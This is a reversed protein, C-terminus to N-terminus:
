GDKKCLEWEELLLSKTAEDIFDVGHERADQIVMDLLHSFEKTNYQSSGKYCRYIDMRGRAGYVCEGTPDVVRYYHRLQDAAEPIVAVDEAFGYKRLANIYLDGCTTKLEVALDALMAWLARNATLSRKKRKVGIEVQLPKGKAVAALLRECAATQDKPLPIQLMGGFANITQAEFKM